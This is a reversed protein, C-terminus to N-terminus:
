LGIDATHLYVGGDTLRRQLKGIDANVFSDFLAAATGAAEGTVACPGIVRTNDWMAATASISRGATILNELRGNHLAGFPIEFVPGPRKWNPIMGISDERHIFPTDDPTEAGSIRRSMRVQPISAISTLSRTENVGGTKLYHNLLAKHSAIVMGTLEAADVGTYRGSPLAIGPNEEALADPLDCVGLQVLRLKENEKKYYWAALPNPRNSLVTEENCLKFLDADGTVDVFCKAAVAGRGSKNQMMIAKMRTDEVIAGCVQTGYLLDVNEKLLLGEALISFVNANYQVCFRHKKREEASGIGDLWATPYDKECGHRVSLRLLEEAIGFSVQHGRGDCLPLYITVLGLTALGGLGYNRDILLVSKAGSRRAALAASIGAIGGGAVVVDYEGIIPTERQQETIYKM